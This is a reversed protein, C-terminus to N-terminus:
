FEDIHKGHKLMVSCNFVVWVSLTDAVLLFILEIQAFVLVTNYQMESTM